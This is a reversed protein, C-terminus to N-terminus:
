MHRWSQHWDESPRWALIVFRWSLDVPHRHHSPGTAFMRPHAYLLHTRLDTSDTWTEILEPTRYNNFVTGLYIANLEPPPAISIYWGWTYPVQLPVSMQFVSRLLYVLFTHAFSSHYYYRAPASIYKSVTEFPRATTCVAPRAIDTRM